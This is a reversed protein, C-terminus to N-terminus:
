PALIFTNGSWVLVKLADPEAPNRTNWDFQFTTTTGSRIWHRPAVGRFIRGDPHLALVPAPQGPVAPAGVFLIATGTDGTVRTFAWSSAGFYWHIYDRGEELQAATETQTLGRSAVLRILAGGAAGGTTIATGTSTAFVIANLETGRFHPTTPPPNTNGSPPLGPNGTSM